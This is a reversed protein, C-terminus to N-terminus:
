VVTPASALAQYIFLDKPIFHLWDLSFSQTCYQRSLTNGNIFYLKNKELLIDENENCIHVSGEVLQYIKFCNDIETHAKNWTQNGLFHGGALLEYTQNLVIM